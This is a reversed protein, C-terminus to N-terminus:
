QILLFTWTPVQFTMGMYSELLHVEVCSSKALKKFNDLILGCINPVGLLFVWSRTVFKAHCYYWPISIDSITTLISRTCGIYTYSSKAWVSFCTSSTLPGVNSMVQLNQLRIALFFINTSTHRLNIYIWTTPQGKPGKFFFFYHYL